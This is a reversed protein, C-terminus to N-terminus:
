WSCHKLSKQHFSKKGQSKDRSVHQLWWLPVRPPQNHCSVCQQLSFVAQWFEGLFMQLSDTNPPLLNPLHWRKPRKPRLVFFTKIQTCFIQFTHVGTGQCFYLSEIKWDLDCLKSDVKEQSSTKIWPQFAACFTQFSKIGQDLTCSWSRTHNTHNSKYSKIPIIQIISLKLLKSAEIWHAAGKTHHM